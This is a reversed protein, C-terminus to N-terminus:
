EAYTQAWARLQTRDIGAALGRLADLDIDGAQDEVAISLEPPMDMLAARRAILSPTGMAAAERPPIGFGEYKSAFVLYDAAALLRFKEARTPRLSRVRIGRTRLANAKTEGIEGVVILDFDRSSSFLRALLWGGKYDRADLFIVASRPQRPAEANAPPFSVRQQFLPAARGAARAIQRQVSRAFCGIATARKISLWQHARSLFSPQPFAGDHIRRRFINLDHVFIRSRIPFLLTVLALRPVWSTYLVTRGRLLAFVFCRAIWIERALLTGIRSLPVIVARDATNAAVTRAFETNARVLLYNEKADDLLTKVNTEASAALGRAASDIWLLDVIQINAPM